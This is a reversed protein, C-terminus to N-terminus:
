LNNFRGNTRIIYSLGPIYTKVHEIEIAVKADSQRM